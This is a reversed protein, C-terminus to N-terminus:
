RKLSRVEIIVFDMEAHTIQRSMIALLEFHEPLYCSIIACILCLVRIPLSLPLSLLPHVIETFSFNLIERIRECKSMIEIASPFDVSFRFIKNSVNLELNVSFNHFQQPISVNYLQPIFVSLRLQHCFMWLSGVLVSRQRKYTQYQYFVVRSLFIQLSSDSRFTM